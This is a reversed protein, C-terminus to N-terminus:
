CQEKDEMKEDKEIRERKVTQRIALFPVHYCVVCSYQACLHSSSTPTHFNKGVQFRVKPRM